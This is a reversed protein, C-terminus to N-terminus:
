VKLTKREDNVVRGGVTVRVAQARVRVPHAMTSLVEKGTGRQKREKLDRRRMRMKAMNWPPPTPAHGVARRMIITNRRKM